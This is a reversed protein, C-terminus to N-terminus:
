EEVLSSHGGSDNRDATSAKNSSAGSDSSM